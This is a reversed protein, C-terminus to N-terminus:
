ISDWTWGLYRGVIWLISQQEHPGICGLQMDEKGPVKENCVATRVNPRFIAFSYCVCCLNTLGGLRQQRM